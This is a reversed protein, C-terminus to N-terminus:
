HILAQLTRHIAGLVALAWRILSFHPLLVWFALLQRVVAPDQCRM